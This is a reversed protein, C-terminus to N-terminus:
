KNPKATPWGIVIAMEKRDTRSEDFQQMTLVSRAM